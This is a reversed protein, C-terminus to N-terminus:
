KLVALYDKAITEAMVDWSIEPSRKKAGAKLDELFDRDLILQRIANHFGKISEDPSVLPIKIGCTENVAISMGNADHCIIPLGMSLAEPIVSSTAERLSTHVFIDAKGMLEFIEEHTVNTIWEINRLGLDEALSHLSEEQPGSGIIQFKIKDRTIESLALAELLISLAKRYSLQGCWIGRIVSRDKISDDPNNLRDYTGVDLMIKVQGESRKRFQTADEHAYTYIVAANRIAQHIRRSFNFQFYNSVSRIRELYRSQRSILSFFKDPLTATGGTPGWFFPIGLKWLYGPERFSIQTLQHAVDFNSTVHERQAARYAAKQWFKYGMYYIVPLGIPGIKKFLSNILFFMRAILPRDVPICKLGRFTGSNQFYDHIAPTYKSAYLVTLDHHRTLRTIINWGVACESGQAPSFEHAIVLVKLRQNEM